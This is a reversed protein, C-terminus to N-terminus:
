ELLVTQKFSFSSTPCFLTLAVSSAFAYNRHVRHLRGIRPPPTSLPQNSSAFGKIFKAKSPGLSSPLRALLCLFFFWGVVRQRTACTTRACRFCLLWFFCSSKFLAAWFSAQAFGTQEVCKRIVPVIYPILQRLGLLTATKM